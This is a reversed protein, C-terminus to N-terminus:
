GAPSPHHALFRFAGAVAMAARRWEIRGQLMLLGIWGIALVAVVTGLRGTLLDVLWALAGTLAHSGDPNFQM